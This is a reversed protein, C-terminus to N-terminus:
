RRSTVDGFTQHNWSTWRKALQRLKRNMEEAFSERERDCILSEIEKGFESCQNSIWIERAARSM